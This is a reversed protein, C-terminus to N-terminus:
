EGTLGSREVGQVFQKQLFVYAILLPLIILATAAMSVGETFINEMMGGGSLSAGGSEVMSYLSPLMMPLLFDEQKSLYIAPEFYDNWHWVMSLVLCVMISSRSGPLAIRFFTRLAGCGDIYAAEELSRPLSLYFQRFLFIFLGGQLGLGFWTPIILALNNDVWGLRSMLMYRPVIITQVPVIITLLLLLFMASKGRFRFRAFGYGTFSCSLLHGLTGLFTVGFTNLFRRPYDLLQWSLQYNRVYLGSVVWNVSVDLLDAPSKVSTVLVYLFPYVFTFTLDLLVIYLVAKLIWRVATKKRAGLAPLARGAALLIHKM